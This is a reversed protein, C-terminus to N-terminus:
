VFNGKRLQVATTLSIEAYEVQISRNSTIKGSDWLDGQDRALMDPSTAVLIQYATQHEGRRASSLRWELRPAVVDIGQPDSRYECHLGAVEVAQAPLLLAGCLLATRVLRHTKPLRSPFLPSFGTSRGPQDIALM